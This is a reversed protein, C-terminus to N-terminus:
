FKGNVGITYVAGPHLKYGYMGNATFDARTQENTLNVADLFVVYNRNIAYQLKLDYILREARDFDVGSTGAYVDDRWNLLVRAQFGRYVFSVGSNVSRPVLLPLKNTTALTGFNGVTETYSYNAFAGLGRWFGPLFSFEQQYSLEYGRVRANGVNLSTTLMYNAYTGSGDIGGSSL